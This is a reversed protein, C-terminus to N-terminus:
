LMWIRWYRKITIKCSAERALKIM